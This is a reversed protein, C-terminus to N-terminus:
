SAKECNVIFCKKFNLFLIQDTCPCKSRPVPSSVLGLIDGGEWDHGAEIPGEPSFVISRHFFVQRLGNKITWNHKLPGMGISGDLQFTRSIIWNM